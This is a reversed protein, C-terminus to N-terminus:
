KLGIRYGNGRLTQIVLLPDKELKKRLRSVYVDIINTNPDSYTQWVRSLIRERSLVKNQNETFYLLLEFEIKTLALEEGNLLAIREQLALELNGVRITPPVTQQPANMRRKLALVRALLEDFDFQKCLYDDAGMELGKVREPVEDLATLMLVMPPNPLTKISELISLSDAAGFLRDLIVIQPANKKISPLVEHLEHLSTCTYGEAKLGRSLFNLLPVEDDALLINM